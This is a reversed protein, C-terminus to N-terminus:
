FNKGGGGLISFDFDFNIPLRDATFEPPLPRFPAAAQIASMAAHDTEPDGSTQAVAIDQVRGDRTIFFSLVTRKSSNSRPPNWTRKISRQLYAMYPGWDIDAQVNVGPNKGKGSEPNAESTATGFSSPMSASALSQMMSAQANRATSPTKMLPGSPAKPAPAVTKQPPKPTAILPKIDPVPPKQVAKEPTKPKPPQPTVQPTPQKPQVAPKEVTQKQPPSATRQVPTLPKNPDNKGGAQQNFQSRLTATDPRKAHTDEVLTFVMDPKKEHPKFLDWLNFHLLWSLLMALLLLLLGTILPGFVHLGTSLAMAKPMGLEVPETGMTVVGILRTKLRHPQTAPKQPLTEPTTNITFPSQASAARRAASSVAQQQQDQPLIQFPSPQKGSPTM